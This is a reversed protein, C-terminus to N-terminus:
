QIDGSQNIGDFIVNFANADFTGNGKRLNAQQLLSLVTYSTNNSLGIATGYSGVNFTKQGTGTKSINFGYGSAVTGALDSDTVYMALAGALVQADTKAGSVSFFRIFLAAVDTNKKGTLNNTSSAGYLNPFYSALTNGLTTSTSSGNLSAILTQGNSNHWFGITATDGHTVCGTTTGTVTISCSVTALHNGTSGTSDVVQATYSFTGAVLPTGTIAGTNTNLTLGSPLSGVTISFGYPATGGSATLASSYPLSVQGSGSACGLTVPGVASGVTITQACTAVNGCADTAKWTRTIISSGPGYGAVTSDTYTIVPHADSNDTATATGTQAPLTSAYNTTVTVAPLLHAAAWCSATCNDFGQNLSDCLNNLASITINYTSISGGGLATNAIALIQKITKGNLPSTSDNLVLNTISGSFGVAAGRSSFDCNLQLALVQGAFVGAGCTLPNTSDSTLATPTGGTPLFAIINSATTFKASYGATGPIGIEVVGGPYVTSFYTTLRAGPNNGNPTAGWGGQTFGCYAQASSNTTLTNTVTVSPPCIIVPATTDQVSITQTFSALNGCLDVASWTRSITLNCATGSQTQVYTVPRAGDVADYATVTPPAPVDNACQYSATAAPLGSLTPPTTNKPAIVLTCVNSATVATVAGLLVNAASARVSVFQNAPYGPIPFAVGGVTGSGIPTGISGRTSSGYLNYGEGSQSSNIIMSVSQAGSAIVQGLDLQVFTSTNIENDVEGKIGLGNESGGLNKGYLAVPTGSNTYGYATIALGSVTYVQSTGLPGSPLNFNWTNTSTCGTTCGAIATAGVADKVMISYTFSGAATPTGTIAGTNTNLTLGAPLAGTVISYTYPATGGSATVSGTFAVCVQGSSSLCTLTLCQLSWTYVVSSAASVNGCADTATITFTRTVINGNTSDVHSVNVTVAGSNDTATVGSKVAADTPLSVSAPNCGLSGGTPVVTIVPKTTDSKWTYVVTKAASANGCADTATVTFTRTTTVGSTSDLYTVTITALGSNDTAMSATQVSASTPLAAPNCGLDSGTPVTLTPITTDAKWTYVVTKPASANGCADTATVTFTRTTTVGSTSDVHSVTITASGSNDTASAAAKVSADTPLNGTVPNCGLDSGAPVTLSPATTDVTWTYVATKPASVNGCADTATVTFTRTTTVGSTSDVHSVTITASGSNDTASSASKVSADTPLSGTM